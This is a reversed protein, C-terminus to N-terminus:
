FEALGDIHLGEHCLRVASMHQSSLQLSLDLIQQNLQISRCCASRYLMGAAVCCGPHQGAVDECNLATRRNCVTMCFPVCIVRIQRIPLSEFLYSVVDTPRGSFDALIRWIRTM